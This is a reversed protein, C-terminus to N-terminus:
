LVSGVLGQSRLQFVNRFTIHMRRARAGTLATMSIQTTGDCDTYSAGSPMDIAENGYLVLCVEVAQVRHWDPQGDGNIDSVNNATVYRIKPDGPTTSDQLLYRVQFNAVNQVLPQAALGNGSCRLENNSLTFISELRQDTTNTDAPGGMCNRGIYQETGDPFLPASARLYGVTLSVPTATGSLMNASPDFTGLGGGAAGVKAVFGVPVLAMSGATDATAGNPNLDLILSGSQRLQMGITRMAYAAQQQIGSVDSVTGSIGRSVMLAGMALAVVLLGVAIGVMLDILTVGHQRRAGSFARPKERRM